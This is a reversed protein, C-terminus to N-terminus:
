KILHFSMLITPIFNLGIIKKTEIFVSTYVELNTLGIMWISDLGLNVSPKISFNEKPKTLIFKLTEQPKTHAQEFFICNKFISLLLDETQNKPRIVDLNM